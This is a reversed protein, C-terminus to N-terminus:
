AFPITNGYSFKISVRKTARFIQPNRKRNNYNGILSKAVTVQFNLHPFKSQTLKGYVIYVNVLAMDWLDFFLYLYYRSKSRRDLPYTSTLKYM